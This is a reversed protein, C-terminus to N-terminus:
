GLVQGEVSQEARGQRQSLDDPVRDHGATISLKLLSYLLIVCLSVWRLLSVWAWPSRRAFCRKNRWYDTIAFFFCDIQIYFFSFLVCRSELSAVLASMRQVKQQLVSTQVGHKQTPSPSPFDYTFFLIFHQIDHVWQV